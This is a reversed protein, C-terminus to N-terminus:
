PTTGAKVTSAAGHHEVLLGGAEEPELEGAYIRELLDSVANAAPGAAGAVPPEVFEACALVDALYDALASVTPYQYIRTSEISVGLERSIQRVWEVGIISDLGMETFSRERDVESEEVYLQQALTVVLRDRLRELDDWAPAPPEESASADAPVPHPETLAVLSFGGAEAVPPSPRSASAAVGAPPQLVIRLHDDTTGIHDDPSEAPPVAAPTEVAPAPATEAPTVPRQGAQAGHLGVWHRTRAFPYGPLDLHPAQPADHPRESPV